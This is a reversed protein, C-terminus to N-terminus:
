AGRSLIADALRNLQSALARRQDAPLDDRVRLYLSSAGRSSWRFSLSCHSKENERAELHLDGSEPGVYYVIESRDAM